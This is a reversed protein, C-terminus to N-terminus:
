IYSEQFPRAGYFVGQSRVPINLLEPSNKFLCIIRAQEFSKEMEDCSSM